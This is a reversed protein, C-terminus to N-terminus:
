KKITSTGLEIKLTTFVKTVINFQSLNVQNQFAIIVNEVGRIIALIM